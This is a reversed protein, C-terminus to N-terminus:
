ISSVDLFDPIIIDKVVFVALFLVTLSGIM